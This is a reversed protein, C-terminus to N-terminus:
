NEAIFRGMGFHSAYGLCIPGRVPEKFRLRLSFGCDIPPRPGRHRSRIFHRHRMARIDEHPIMIEASLPEPLGRSALEASIQGALTNKGTKKLHRSPVFPTESVWVTAGSRPGLLDGIRQGFIGSLSRLDDLKGSGVVAVRLSDNGGKTYTRRVARVAEQASADLEMTAWILIHELHGDGDLDLPLIHAHEHRGRLPQREEDRGILATCFGAENRTAFSILARHLLEAQPLTRVVSPLANDNGSKTTMSLLMAEVSPASTRSVHLRPAGAELANSPRWYFVRRSGPPQCWGHRHLWSTEVQLCSILDSPYPAEIKERQALAKKEEKTLKKKTAEVEPLAALASSVATRRWEVYDERSLAAILPLQEWGLPPPMESPYCELGDPLTEFPQALRATVWSESRGLYGLRETLAELMASEEQSLEVDWNIAMVGTDVQAWTDFVMTTDERRNKFKALPMYHRSHAGVAPPLRYSPLTAALKEILSRATTPPGDGNWIGTRYGTAIFARLIRWPSPPWEILGENVHHGWPTAHFRRGPFQLLLTQM